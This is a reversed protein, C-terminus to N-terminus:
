KQVQVSIGARQSRNISILAWCYHHMAWFSPGMLSVWYSARPSTNSYADGYKFGMTDPCYRPLLEMETETIDNPKAVAMGTIVMLSLGLALRLTIRSFSALPQAFDYM